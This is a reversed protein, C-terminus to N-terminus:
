GMFFCGALGILLCCNVLIMVWLPPNGKTNTKVGYVIWTLPLAGALGALGITYGAWMQGEGFPIILLIAMFIGSSIGYYGGGNLLARLMYQYKQDIDEWSTELAQLHYPM